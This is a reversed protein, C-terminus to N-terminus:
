WNGLTIKTSVYLKHDSYGYYLGNDAKWCIHNDMRHNNREVYKSVYWWLDDDEIVLMPQVMATRYSFFEVIEGYLRISM